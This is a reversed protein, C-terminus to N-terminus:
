GEISVVGTYIKLEPRTYTEEVFKSTKTRTVNLCFLTLSQYLDCKVNLEFHIKQVNETTHRSM